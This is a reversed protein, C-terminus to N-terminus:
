RSDPANEGMQKLTKHPDRTSWPVAHYSLRGDPAIARALPPDLRHVWGYSDAENREWSPSGLELRGASAIAFRAFTAYTGSAPQDPALKLWTERWRSTLLEIAEAVDVKVVLATAHKWALATRGQQDIEIVWQGQLHDFRRRLWLSPDSRWMRVISAADDLESFSVGALILRAIAAHSAGHPFECLLEELWRLARRRQDFRPLDLADILAAARLGARWAVNEEAEDEVPLPAPPQFELEEDSWAPLTTSDCEPPTFDPEIFIDEFLWEHDDIPPLHHNSAAIASSLDDDQDEAEACELLLAHDPEPGVYERGEASRRIRDPDDRRAEIAKENRLSESSVELSATSQGDYRLTFWDDDPHVDPLIRLDDILSHRYDWNEEITSCADCPVSVKDHKVPLHNTIRDPNTDHESLDGTPRPLEIFDIYRVEEQKQVLRSLVRKVFVLM